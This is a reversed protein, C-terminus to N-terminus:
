PYLLVCLGPPFFCAETARHRGRAGRICHKGASARRKPTEPLFRATRLKGNISNPPTVDNSNYQQAFVPLTCLLMGAVWPLRSREKCGNAFLGSFQKM